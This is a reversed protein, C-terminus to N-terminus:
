EITNDKKRKTPKSTADNKDGYQQHIESYYKYNTNFKLYKQAAIQANIGDQKSFIQTDKKFYHYDAHQVTASNGM